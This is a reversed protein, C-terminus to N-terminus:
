ADGDEQMEQMEILRSLLYSFTPPLQHDLALLRFFAALQLDAAAVTGRMEQVARVIQAVDGAGRLPSYGALLVPLPPVDPTPILASHLRPAHIAPSM